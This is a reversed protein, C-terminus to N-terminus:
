GVDHCRQEAVSPLAHPGLPNHLLQCAEELMAEPGAGPPQVAATAASNWRDIDAVTGGVATHTDRANM